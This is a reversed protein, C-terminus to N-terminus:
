CDHELGGIKLKRLEPSPDTLQACINSASQSAETISFQIMLTIQNYVPKM